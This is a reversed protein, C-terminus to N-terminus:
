ILLEECTMNLTTLIKKLHKDFTSKNDITGNMLRDLTPRSIDAKKCFSVKTFGFDRICEKLKDAVLARQEFLIDFNM